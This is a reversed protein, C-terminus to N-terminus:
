YWDFIDGLEDDSNGTVDEEEQVDSMHMDQEKDL